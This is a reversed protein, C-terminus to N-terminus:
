KATGNYIQEKLIKQVETKNIGMLNLWKYLTKNNVKAVNLNQSLYDRKAKSGVLIIYDHWSISPEHNSNFHVVNALAKKITEQDAQAIGVKNNRIALNKDIFAHSCKNGLYDSVIQRIKQGPYDPDTFIIIQHTLSLQKIRQLIHKDIASGNTVICTLNPYISQIKNTDTKGEVVIINNDWM